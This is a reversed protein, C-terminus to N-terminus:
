NCYLQMSISKLHKIIMLHKHTFGLLLVIFIKLNGIIKAMTAALTAASCKLTVNATAGSYDITPTATATASAVNWLLAAWSQQRYLEKRHTNCFINILERQGKYLHYNNHPQKSSLNDICKKMPTESLLYNICAYYYNYTVKKYCRSKSGM